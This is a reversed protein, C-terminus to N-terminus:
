RRGTDTAYVTSQDLTLALDSPASNSYTVQAPEADNDASNGEADTVTVVIPYSGNVTSRCRTTSPRQELISASPRRSAGTAGISRSATRNASAPGTFTVHLQAPSLSGGDMTDAGSYQTTPRFRFAARAPRSSTM